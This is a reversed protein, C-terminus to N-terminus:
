EKSAVLEEYKERVDRFEVDCEYVNEFWNKANERDGLKLYAEGLGYWIEKIDTTVRKSSPAKELARKYTDIALPLQGKEAFLQALLRLGPYARAPNQAAKQVVPIAKDLDGKQHLVKGYALLADPDGVRKEVVERLLNAKQELYESEVKEREQRLSINESDAELERDIRVLRVRFLDDLYRPDTPHLEYLQRYTGEAEDLNGKKENCVAITHVAEEGSEKDGSELVRNWIAMAHDFKDIQVLLRGVEPLLQQNEDPNRKYKDLIERIREEKGERTEKESAKKEADSRALTLDTIGGTKGYHEASLNKVKIPWNHDNPELKQLSAYVDIAAPKDDIQEFVPGAGKLLTKNNPLFRLARRYAMAALAPQGTEKLSKAYKAARHPDQPKDLSLVGLYNVASKHIGLGFLLDGVVRFLIRKPGNLKQQAYLNQSREFLTQAEADRPSLELLAAFWAHAGDFDQASMAKVGKEFYKQLKPSRETM